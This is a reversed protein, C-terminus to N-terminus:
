KQNLLHKPVTVSMFLHLALNNMEEHTYSVTEQIKFVLCHLIIMNASYVCKRHTNGRIICGLDHCRVEQVM